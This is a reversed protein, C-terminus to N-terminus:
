AGDPILQKRLLHLESHHLLLVDLKSALQLAAPTFGSNSVVVAHDAEDFKQGAAVQQVAQNGVPSSYRKCQIAVVINSTMALLDVGQDGTGGKRHVRWGNARLIEECHAEYETGSLANIDSDIKITEGGSDEQAWVYIMSVLNINIQQRLEETISDVNYEDPNHGLLNLDVGISLLRQRINVFEAEAAVVHNIFHKIEAGAENFGTDKGYEDTRLHQKLKRNLVRSHKAVLQRVFNKLERSVIDKEEELRVRTSELEQSKQTKSKARERAVAAFVLALVILLVAFVTITM